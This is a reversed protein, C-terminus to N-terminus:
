KGGKDNRKRKRTVGRNRRAKWLFDLEADRKEQTEAFDIDPDRDMITDLMRGTRVREPRPPRKVFELAEGPNPVEISSWNLGDDVNGKELCEICSRPVNGDKQRPKQWQTETFHQRLRWQSCGYCIAM